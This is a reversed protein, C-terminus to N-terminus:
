GRRSRRGAFLLGLGSVLLGVGIMLPTWVQAGTKALPPQHPKPGVPPPTSDDVVTVKATGTDTVPKGPQETDPTGTGTAVNVLDGSRPATTTCTWERSAGPDLRDFTRACVPLTTDTVVVPALAVNGTNTATLTFTVTAGPEVRDASATKTVDLGPKAVKAVADDSSDVPKGTPDNGTATVTNTIDQEGMTVECTVPEAEAGVALSGIAVACGPAVEDALRVDTLPVDGTNKVVVTFTVKQGPLVPKAPGTKTVTIGPGIVDVEAEDTDTVRQGIPDTGTVSATNTVDESVVITCTRTETAGADLRALTFGCAPAKDDTVTVATLPVDGTNTVTITYTVEDGPRVQGPEVSKDIEVGPHIVDVVADDSSTVDPGTPPTGTVSAVNTVDDEPAAMTCTYTSTGQPELVEITKACDPAIADTVQVDTLPVDGTNTVTITFTVQDGAHFPGEDATKTIGIGPHQVVFTADDTDSVSRSTPDTGTVSATNTFGAAGATVSCTYTTSGDPALLGIERACSPTQDDVVSVTSLPVDGTNTVTITFTVQDGERVAEPAVDKTITVAPHIVDVAADDSDTVVPGTPPTGTVTAVNTVDDEPAAMTCTYTSTGQPELVEITRACDPAVPDAVQVNTLLVDGTNTVTITFTVQDGTRFPGGEATKTIEVGPRQVVFTADDTDSVPRSTPDTGTVSAINTFGAAGATVSCTYTTSGDPVLLGIEGACSPTQDDVVSVSSLPIDGTNTVTITFTVLDGERVAEPSVDKTITVAPHIVDVVADDSDSVSGGIPDIGSATATNTFDEAPASMTCEYTQVGGPALTGITRACASAVPDAVSVGSLPVDGTNTVTITFTVEDGERVLSPEASKEVQIGPHIVDVVADDQSTVEAGTPPTGTVTAVNTVDDEPAAMTCTFSTSGAVGLYGIERACDAALPDTVEVTTLPVDGTNTVTITFTVQDGVRFPGGETTKTISIGPQQVVFTADDTDSVPRATPDTGTVSATNTFGAAGATVSCTYTTSGDPALVGIERACSPTQDDVVSVSSLLVDGTNTVTISFTVLDGERVAEPSVDKTITVAPHIVDVVADDSDSVSGGIPDIGSATATNTFDDALASMTCEYTQVAGPALTGITRACASAVPDAVSVGSLPVDGTNTVTITFTVEDGERVLAPEASKEIQIGPRIVTVTASATDTAQQGVADTGTATVTNTTTVAPNGTCTFETSAGPALAGLTRGCAPTTDDTVVVPDLANGGTNTVTITWTVQEGAHIVAPDASKRVDIAPAAIPVPADGSDTVQKGLQDSGTVTATNVNDPLPATGTCTFETSAGPALTGPLGRACNATKPDTVTLSSLPADGTNTVKITFVVQEGPTYAAKDASKTLEIAPNLVDVEATATGELPDDLASTGTVKATNTFDAGGATGTCTYSTSQGGGLTGITKACSPFLPDAVRVNSAPAGSPNTVTITFTVQDGAHVAKPEATKTIQLEPVPTSFALNQALYADGGTSFSMKASTAGAPINGTTFSKADVSFNNKVAPATAGQGNSIFFNSADGTDPEFEPQDNIAFTDRPLGWDGEYATVGVRSEPSTARFGTINVSTTPDSSNQRVHGDYIFVERKAPAYAPNREPYAYVVAISWGGMCGFGKPAWVNGVTLDLASGTPAGAFASTVDAYASYYQGGSYTSSPDETYSAPSVDVAKAGGVSLRVAQGAPTGPPLVAPTNGNRVQCMKVTSPRGPSSNYVGTNGAWNLRAFKVQAGPPITVSARSSDFTGADSDVDSWQMFFNDNVQTTSRNASSVCDAPSNGSGTAPAGDAPVPCRLSGNGAYLFDGYVAENFNLAFPKVVAAAAPTTFAVLSSVAFLVALVVRGFRSVTSM